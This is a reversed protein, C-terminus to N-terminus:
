EGIGVQWGAWDLGEWVLDDFGTSGIWVRRLVPHGMKAVATDDSLHAMAFRDAGAWRRVASSDDIGTGM